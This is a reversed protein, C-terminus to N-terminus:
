RVEGRIKNRKLDLLFVIKGEEEEKIKVPEEEKQIM